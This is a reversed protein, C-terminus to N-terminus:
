GTECFRGSCPLPRWMRLFVSALAQKFPCCIFSAAFTESLCPMNALM